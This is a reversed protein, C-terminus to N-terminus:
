KQEKRYPSNWWAKLFRMTGYYICSISEGYGVENPFLAKIMDGNTAEEPIKICGKCSKQELAKIAMDLATLVEPFINRDANGIERNLISIAEEKTMM